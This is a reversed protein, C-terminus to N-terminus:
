SHLASRLTDLAARHLQSVRGKTVGWEQALEVFPVFEFYHRVVLVRQRRPLRNVAMVVRVAAQRNEAFIFGDAFDTLVHHAADDLMYGLALGVISGVLNDAPNLERTMLTELREGYTASGDGGIIARVGNFVSGRVRAMAYAQFAIGRDPEFRDIAELLGLSANQIFDGRDATLRPFRRHVRRAIASAWPSYRVYLADRASVDGARKLRTWLMTEDVDLASGM